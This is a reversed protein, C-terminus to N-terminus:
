VFFVVVYELPLLQIQDFFNANVHEGCIQDLGEEIKTMRLGFGSGLSGVDSSLGEIFGSSISGDDLPIGAGSGSSLSDAPGDQPRGYCNFCNYLFDYIRSWM